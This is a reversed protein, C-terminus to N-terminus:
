SRREMIIVAGILREAFPALDKWILGHGEGGDVTENM